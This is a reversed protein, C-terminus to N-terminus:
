SIQSIVSRWLFLTSMIICQSLVGKQVQLSGSRGCPTRINHSQSSVIRLQIFM